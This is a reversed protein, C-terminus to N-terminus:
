IKSVQYLKTMKNLLKNTFKDLQRELLSQIIEEAKEKDFIRLSSDLKLLIKKQGFSHFTEVVENKNMSNYLESTKLNQLILEVIKMRDQPNSDSYCKKSAAAFFLFHIKKSFVLLRTNRTHVLHNQYYEDFANSMRCLHQFNEANKKSRMISRERIRYIYFIKQLYFVRKSNMIWLLHITDEFETKNLFACNNELLFERRFLKNWVYHIRSFNSILLREVSGKADHLGAFNPSTIKIIESYSDFQKKFEFLLVDISNEEACSVAEYLCQNGELMDDSDVFWIYKGRAHSLGTNRAGGLGLNERHSIIKVRSDISAYKEAILKSGDQSCDDVLLLEFDKYTQCLISEICEGIFEEVGWFPVIISVQPM